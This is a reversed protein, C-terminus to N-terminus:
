KKFLILLARWKKWNLIWPDRWIIEVLVSSLTLIEVYYQMMIIYWLHLNFIFLNYSYFFIDNIKHIYLDTNAQQNWQKNGEKLENETHSDNLIWVRSKPKEWSIDM